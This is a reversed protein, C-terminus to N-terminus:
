CAKLEFCSLFYTNLPKVKLSLIGARAQLLIDEASSKQLGKGCENRNRCLLEAGRQAALDSLVLQQLNHVSLWTLEAGTFM